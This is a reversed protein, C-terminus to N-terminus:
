SHKQSIKRRNQNPQYVWAFKSFVDICTLIYRFGDNDKSIAQMDALDAQWQKDIGSVFTRNRAFHKRAPMHLTFSQQDRLFERISDRNVAAGSERAARHLREVGGYAGAGATDYYMDSIVDTPQNTEM